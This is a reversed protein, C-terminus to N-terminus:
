IRSKKNQQIESIAQDLSIDGLWADRDTTYNGQGASFQNMFRITDVVGLEKYLIGTARNTIEALPRTQTMM